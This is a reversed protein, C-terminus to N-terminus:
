RETDMSSISESESYIYIHVHGCIFIKKKKPLFLKFKGNNECKENVISFFHQNGNEAM